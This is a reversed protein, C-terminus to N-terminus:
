RRFVRGEACARPHLAVVALAILSEVARGHNPQEVTSQREGATPQIKSASGSDRSLNQKLLHRPYIPLSDIARLSHQIQRPSLRAQGTDFEMMRPSLLQGKAIVAEVHNHGVKGPM